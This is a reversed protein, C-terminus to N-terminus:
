SRRSTSTTRSGRTQSKVQTSKLRAATSFFGTHLDFVDRRLMLRTRVEEIDDEILPRVVQPRAPDPIIQVCAMMEDLLPGADEFPINALATFGMAAIAAMGMEQANDPIELGSKALSMLARIAWREAQSAPMETLLYTKGQDRGEDQISVTAQKRM